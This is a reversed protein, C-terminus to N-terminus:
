FCFYLASVGLPGVSWLSPVQSGQTAESIDELPTMSSLINTKLPMTQTTSQESLSKILTQPSPDGTCICTTCEMIKIM